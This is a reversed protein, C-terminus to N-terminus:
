DRRCLAEVEDIEKPPEPLVEHGDETILVGSEIRIGIGEEPIVLFPEIVLVVGPDYPIDNDGNADHINLGVPHGARGYGYKALGHADFHEYIAQHADLNSSGPRMTAIAKKEAELVIAYLERQRPTFRGNAPFTTTIDSSYGNCAVGSDILVLDGDQIGQNNDMYHAVTANVGAAVIISGAYADLANSFEPAQKRVEFDFIAQGLSENEGPKLRRMIKEFIRAHLEFARRLCDIEYPEKVRRMEHIKPAINELRLWYYRHRIRNMRALSSPARDGLGPNGPTNLWLVKQDMLAPSLIENLKSLSYVDAVGSSARIDDHSPSAGDMFAEREDRENVFLLEKVKRGRGLEPGGNTEWRDVMIGAPALILVAEKSTLGTLYQLNKDALSPDPAVGASDILAIGEDIGESLRSRRDTYIEALKSQESMVKEM